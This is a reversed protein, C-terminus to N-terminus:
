VHARGIQFSRRYDECRRVKDEQKVSFCFAVYIDETTLTKLPMGPVKAAPRPWWSPTEFPGELRGLHLETLLEQQMVQWCEDVKYHQLRNLTQQRNLKHFTEMDLPHSYRSDARPLWGEGHHLKGITAFGQELDEQLIDVGPCQFLRLLHVFIPIQTIQDFEPNYYVAAVHEPLADWWRRTDDAAEEVLVRVEDSIEARIRVLDDGNFSM